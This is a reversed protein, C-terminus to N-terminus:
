PKRMLHPFKQSVFEQVDRTPNGEPKKNSRRHELVNKVLENYNRGHIWYVGEQYRWGGPPMLSRSILEKM